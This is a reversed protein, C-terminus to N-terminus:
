IIKLKHFKGQAVLSEVAKRHTVYSEGKDLRRRCDCCTVNKAGTYGSQMIDSGGKPFKRGCLTSFISKEPTIVGGTAYHISM